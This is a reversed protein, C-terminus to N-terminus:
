KGPFAATLAVAQEQVWGSFTKAPKQGSVAAIAARRKLAGRTLRYLSKPLSVNVRTTASKNTAMPPRNKTPRNKTPRNLSCM